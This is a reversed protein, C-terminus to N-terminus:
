GQLRPRTDGIVMDNYAAVLGYGQDVPQRATRRDRSLGDM